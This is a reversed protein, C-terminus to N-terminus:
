ARRDVFCAVSSPRPTTSQRLLAGLAARRAGMADEVDRQAALVTAARSRLRGPVPGLGDPLRYVPPFPAEGHVAAWWHDLRREMEDLVDDWPDAASVVDPALDAM